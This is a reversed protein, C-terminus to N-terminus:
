VEDQNHLLWRPFINLNKEIPWLAAPKWGGPSSLSLLVSHTRRGPVRQERNRSYCCGLKHVREASVDEM